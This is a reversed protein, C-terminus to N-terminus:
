RDVERLWTGDLSGKLRIKTEHGNSGNRVHDYHFSVDGYFELPKKEEEYLDVYIQFGAIIFRFLGATDDSAKIPQSELIFHGEMRTVTEQFDLRYDMRTSLYSSIVSILKEDLKKKAKKTDEM